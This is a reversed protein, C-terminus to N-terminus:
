FKYNIVFFNEPNIFIHKSTISIYRVEQSERVQLFQSVNDCSIDPLIQVNSVHLYVNMFSTVCIPSHSSNLRFLKFSFTKDCLKELLQFLTMWFMFNFLKWRSSHWGLHTILSAFIKVVKINLGPNILGTNQAIWYSAGPVVDVVFVVRCHSCGYVNAVM